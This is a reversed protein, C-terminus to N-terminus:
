DVKNFVQSIVMGSLILACGAFQQLTLLEGFWLYSFLYAFVPEAIFVLAIKNPSIFKQAYAQAWYAFLTAFVALIGIGILAMPHIALNGSELVGMPISSLIGVTFIQVLTIKLPDIKSYKSLLLIHISFGIACIFTLAEGIQWLVAGGTLLFLGAVAIIIPLITEKRPLKKMSMSYLVPVFVVYLGTIFASNAPSILNQGSIQTAFSLFLVVGAVLGAVAEVRSIRIKKIEFYAFLLIAAIGFRIFLLTFTGYYDLIYKVLSFSLGWVLSAGLALALAKKETM